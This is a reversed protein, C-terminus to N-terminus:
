KTEYTMVVVGSKFSQVNKLVLQHANEMKDFLATGKALVVPDIMLQYEDILSHETLQRVISGSGLITIDAGKQKKLQKIEDFIDGRLITTNQWTAKELKESLVFKEAKNMGAAVGPDNEIAFSTPWYSAMMEYTVRGFLLAHEKELMKEAFKNEDAGHQHWDVSNNGDKYFGNLSLFTFASLKRM